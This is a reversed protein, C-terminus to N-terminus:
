FLRYVAAAIAIYRWKARWEAYTKPFGIKLRHKTLENPYHRKQLHKWMDSATPEDPTINQKARREIEKKYFLFADDHAKGPRPAKTSNLFEVLAICLYNHKANPEHLAKLIKAAKKVYDPARGSEAEDLEGLRILFDAEDEASRGESDPLLERERLVELLVEQAVTCFEHSNDSLAAAKLKELRTNVKSV